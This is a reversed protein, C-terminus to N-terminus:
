IMLLVFRPRWACLENSVNQPTWGQRLFMLRGCIFFMGLIESGGFCINQCVDIGFRNTGVKLCKLRDLAIGQCWWWGQGMRIKKM